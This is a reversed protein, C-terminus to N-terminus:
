ATSRLCSMLATDHTLANDGDGGDGSDGGDGGDGDASNRACM